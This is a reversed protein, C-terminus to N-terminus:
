LKNFLVSLSQFGGCEGRVRLFYNERKTENTIILNFWQQQIITNTNYFVPQGM